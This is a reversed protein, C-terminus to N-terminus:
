GGRWSEVRQAVADLRLDLDARTCYRSQVMVGTIQRINTIKKELNILDWIPDPRSV